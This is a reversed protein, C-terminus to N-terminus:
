DNRITYRLRVHLFYLVRGSHLFGNKDLQLKDDGRRSSEPTIKPGREHQGRERKACYQLWEVDHIRVGGVLYRMM